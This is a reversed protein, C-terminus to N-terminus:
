KEFNQYKADLLKPAQFLSLVDWDLGVHRQDFATKKSNNQKM